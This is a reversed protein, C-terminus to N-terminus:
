RDHGLAKLTERDLAHVIDEQGSYRGERFRRSRLGLQMQECVQWDERNTIDWFEIASKFRTMKKEDAIVDPHLLFYCDNLSQDVKVSRIRHYLVFDPHPSLLLNPYVSYYHVRNLNDGSVECVPPAAAEGDMTMSGGKQNMEMYGGIVSGEQCDHVANRFPTWKSLLPHVGPCHYCEQYNQLILKWNCKLEYPLHHAIRLEPLHWTEFKGILGAMETKFPVPDTSLNIFVFGGWRAVAAQHLPYEEKRFTKLDNMLPAATLNGRLDYSWAHYPCRITNKEFRGSPQMCIRTGRHRCVNFHARIEGENDRVVLISEEGVPVAVFDGPEPLEEERCAMIWRAYFIKEIEERYIEESHYYRGPLTM